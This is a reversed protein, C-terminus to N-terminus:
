VKFYALEDKQAVSLEALENSAHLSQNVSSVNQKVLDFAQTTNRSTDETVTHQEQSATAVLANMESISEVAVSIDEFVLKIQEGLVVSEEILHVNQEMNKNASRSQAQLKEIITQISVTSEQTKSALNRVEDAVVAFGRGHDGARAAEIAANLALLNIQESIGNIVDTVSGIEVAFEELVRLTQATEDVSANINNSLNINEELKEKGTTVHQQAESTRQEAVVAKDSMEISTSSLENIATSIQEVQSMEQEANSLTETMSHSLQESAAAVNEAISHSKKILQSLQESLNVLSKYIGTESGTKTLSQNLKGQAMSEMLAEIEKPEGGLPTLVLKQILILLIAIAVALSVLGIALSSMLQSDAGQEIDANKVFSVLTWGNIDLRSGFATFSTKQGRVDAQYSVIDSNNGFARYAPRQEFMNQGVLEPYPSAIITDERTYIFMNDRDAASGLVQELKLNSLVAFTDNIRYAMGLVEKGSVASKFHPSIYFQENNRFIANFYGRNLQKVNFNQLTGRVDYIDGNDRFLYIGDTVSKQTLYLANLKVIALESLGQELVDQETIDVTSIENKYAQLKEILGAEITENQGKLIAKNLTVSESKFASYSLAILASIIIVIILSLSGILQLKFNSKGM